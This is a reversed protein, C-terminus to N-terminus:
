DEPTQAAFEIAQILGGAISLLNIAVMIALLPIFEVTFAFGEFNITFIGFNTSCITYVIIFFSRIIILIYKYITGESIRTAFTFFLSVYALVWYLTSFRQFLAPFQKFIPELFSPLLLWIIFWIVGYIATVVAAKVTKNVLKRRNRKAEAEVESM